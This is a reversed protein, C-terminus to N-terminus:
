LSRIYAILESISNLDGAQVYYNEADMRTNGNLLSNKPLIHRERIVEDVLQERSIYGTLNAKWDLTTLLDRLFMYDAYESYFLRNEKMISTGDPDIRILVFFDYESDGREVNPVYRGDDDWDKTELLLLNGFKKTSKIAIKVGNAVLDVSDWQNLGMVRTDPPDAHIKSHRFVNYFAFESLKGQFADIFIEGNKRHTQGGSRHSRHEGQNGFTMDYAFDFSGYIDDIDLYGNAKFERPQDIYFSGKEMEKLRHM